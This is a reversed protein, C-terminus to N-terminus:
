SGVLRPRSNSELKAIVEELQDLNRYHVVLRGQEGRGKVEVKLGLRESLRHELERTDADGPAAMAVSTGGSSTGRADGQTGDKVLAETDRVSLGRALVIGALASPDEGGLLARAHGATLRGDDLMAQVDAPLDMLRMTNAVHSRSRGVAEGIQAQNFGFEDHLRKYAAAEELPGLDTRQLNEVLAIEIVEVDSFERVLVPVEHLTALQAARWRREGAVIELDGDAGALVPRALIPQLMGQRRLSDALSDIEEPNFHTRPQFRGPRLDGVPVKRLGDRPREGQPEGILASLGRGLGRTESM